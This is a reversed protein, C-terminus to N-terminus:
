NSGRKRSMIFRVLIATELYDFNIPKVIYDFAGLEVAKKAITEDALATIMIVGVQPNIKMIGALTELGDMGPMMIDLLVLDPTASKVLELGTAGDPATSVEYGRPTLQSEMLELIMPDDDVCLIKMKNAM